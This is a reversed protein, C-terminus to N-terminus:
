KKAREIEIAYTFREANYYGLNYEVPRRGPDYVFRKRFLIPDGIEINLKRAITEDALRANIEERSISAVTHYNQELTHYLPQSFDEDGRLGIRPHFYSVFCVVPGDELGRLRELKLVLKDSPINFFHVVEIPPSVWHVRIDINKFLIGKENMEQTFSLWSDLRTTVAKRDSVRTGVGKKRVILGDHVLKNVAQRVTNRSIGFQKALEVEAPLLKGQRYEPQVILDRLVAEVQAYLPLAAHHDIRGPM